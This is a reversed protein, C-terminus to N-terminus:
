QVTSQTTKFFNTNDDEKVYKREGRNEWIINKNKDM